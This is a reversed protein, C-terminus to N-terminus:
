LLHVASWSWSTPLFYRRLFILLDPSYNTSLNTLNKPHVYSVSRLQDQHEYVIEKIIQEVKAALRDEKTAAKLQLAESLDDVMTEMVKLHGMGLLIHMVFFTESATLGNVTLYVLCVMIIYNLEFGPSSTHDLMPLYIGFPLFRKGLLFLVIPVTSIIFGSSFYFIKMTKYGMLSYNLFRELVEKRSHIHSNRQYTEHSQRSLQLLKERSGLFIYLKLM